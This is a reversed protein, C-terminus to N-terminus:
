QCWWQHSSAATVRPIVSLSHGAGCRNELGIIAAFFREGERDECEERSM